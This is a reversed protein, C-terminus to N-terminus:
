TGLIQIGLATGASRLDQDLSALPLNRRQALELYAADYTTLQFRDSLHLTTNWAFTNTEADTIINMLALDALSADRISSSIRGRRMGNQLGNSVELQWIIPVLAYSDNVIDFVSRIADTTEDEYLWALTASSDLVLSM